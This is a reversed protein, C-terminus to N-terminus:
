FEYRLAFQMIRPNTLLRTYKGFATALDIATSVSQVDFRASNPVNFVEWRFQLSHKEAYPMKWRKSLGMDVGFFGDGRLNNRTGSEGPFDHRFDGLATSPNPFLNVTGDGNKTTRTVPLQGVPQAQGGLQWNTPWTAGNSVSVPFGTTWRYIGSLQWGGILAELPGRANHAFRHSRGFPLEAVWNANIQHAADFDSVGRLQTESWSNIVQGGLGGWPDIREADSALDISRSYTYNFDFLLGGSFRKRLSLQLGHYAANARSRWAYLSSFQQNYFSYGGLKSCGNACLVGPVDLLFLATTENYLNSSYVDYAMQLANCQPVTSGCSSFSMGALAPFLNYWYNATPGVLSSTINGVPTGAAGLQALRKAASFYDVGSAPDVLDLPMAMDQQILLRHSLHGVYSAELTMNGPLERTISFDLLYSYPTKISNDLGWSISFLGTPFQQPYGGKPAPTFITNGCLDTTPVTNLGTVRPACALTEFGGPNTLLSSLGFSGNQDFSSLLGSGIHDYVVGFGARISTKDGEGFIRKLMGSGPRPSYAVALRPSWNNYDWNYFGPKGNAPGALAFSILPDQSSPIGKRMDSARQNFWQGMDVNPAVQLGTTEWPPSQLEYRMGYTLTLNPKARWADQFYFEYEDAGFHRRTPAGQALLNGQKDYNYQADVQTVSGLLAILPYDYSNNFSPDVAPFGSYAPDLPINKNAIGSTPLWSANTVGDSFSTALSMRPNRIFRVNTGFSFSHSSHTWAMDDVFNHVPLTFGRGYFFNYPANFSDDNLGRFRIWPESGSGQRAQSQRTLGWRFNNVLTPRLSATYGLVFGKSYDVDTELPPGGPLYPVGAMVDNQLSGRWFLSHKGSSTLQYDLRAFYTDFRNHVPAAFRFGDYNLGDGAGTDNPMPYGQFFNLMVPNPGIGLPDMQKLNDVTLTDVNGNVDKYRMMGQRLTASPVTRLVSNQQADRRGEYNLFFFVRDKKIPGGVSGGFINRILQPAQSKQGAQLQSLKIFYDNASTATNRTYEYLSGHFANTGSNTAIAVQAGSSRGQDANYNTTSVRFEYMSEPTIRLVSTFAYGNSQDNADVGDITINSQDSHAGNVAGSRTDVTLDTDPRNGLFVVGPQLSYLGAVDRAELPLQKVQNETIANGLSADTTNLLGAEATVEVTQTSSGVEMRADVTAPTNVLLRVSTEYKRFGEAEIRLRYKGPLVQVFEYVGDPGAATKRSLGTAPSSLSVQARPIVAGTADTVTGRLSTTAQGWAWSVCLVVVSFSLGLRKHVGGQFM